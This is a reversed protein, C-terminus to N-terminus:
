PFQPAPMFKLIRLEAWEFVLLVLDGLLDGVSLHLGM